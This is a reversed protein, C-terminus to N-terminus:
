VLRFWSEEGEEGIVGQAFSDDGEIDMVGDVYAVGVLKYLEERGRMKRARRVVYPTMACTAIVEDGVQVIGPGVAFTGSSLTFIARGRLNRVVSPMDLFQLAFKAADGGTLFWGLLHHASLLSSRGPVPVGIPMTALSLKANLKAFVKEITECPWAGVYDHSSLAKAVRSRLPHAEKSDGPLAFESPDGLLQCLRRILRFDDRPLIIVATCSGLSKGNIRLMGEHISQTDIGNYPQYRPNLQAFSHYRNPTTWLDADHIADALNPLWSPYVADTLHDKYLFHAELLLLLGEQRGRGAKAAYTLAELTIRKPEKRYDPPYEAQLDPLLGYLAYLRDRPDQCTRTSTGILFESLFPAQHRLSSAALKNTLINPTKRLLLTTSNQSAKNVASQRLYLAYEWSVRASVFETARIIDSHRMALNGCRLTAEPQALFAEQYTWMRSWYPRCLIDTIGLSVEELRATELDGFRHMFRPFGKSRPLSPLGFKHPGLGYVFNFATKADSTSEGLWSIVLSAKFYIQGMMPVQHNKELADNQNICIADAWLTRRRFPYRLHRLAAELSTTILVIRGNVIIARKNTKDGWAYSLADYRLCIAARLSCKRLECSLPASNDGPLLTLLRIEASSRNLPEHLPQM